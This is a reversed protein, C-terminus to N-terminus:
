GPGGDTAYPREQAAIGDTSRLVFVGTDLLDLLKGARGICVGGLSMIWPSHGCGQKQGRKWESEAYFYVDREHLARGTWVCRVEHVCAAM